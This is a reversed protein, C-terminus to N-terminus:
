NEVNTKEKRKQPKKTNYKINKDTAYMNTHFTEWCM